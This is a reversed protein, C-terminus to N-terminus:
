APIHTKEHGFPMNARESLLPTAYRTLDFATLRFAKKRWIWLLGSNSAYIM